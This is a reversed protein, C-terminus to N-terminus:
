KSLRVFNNKNNKKDIDLLIQSGEAFEKRLKLGNGFYLPPFLCYFLDHYMYLRFIRLNKQM